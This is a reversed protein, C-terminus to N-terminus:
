GVGRKSVAAEADRPDPLSPLKHMLVEGEPEPQVQFGPARSLTDPRVQPDRHRHLLEAPLTRHRQREPPLVDRRQLPQHQAERSSPSAHVPIHREDVALVHRRHQDSPMKFVFKMINLVFGMTKLVFTMTKLAFNM